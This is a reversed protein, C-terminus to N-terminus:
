RKTRNWRGDMVDWTYLQGKVQALLDGWNNFGLRDVQSLEVGLQAPAARVANPLEENAIRLAEDRSGPDIEDFEEPLFFEVLRM